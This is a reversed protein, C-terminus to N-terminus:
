ILLCCINDRFKGVADYTGGAQLVYAESQEMNQELGLGDGECRRWVAAGAGRHPWAGFCFWCEADVSM